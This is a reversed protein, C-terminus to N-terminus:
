NLTKLYAIVDDLDNGDHLGGFPMRNGPVKAQPDSIYARLNPEDWVLNARRMPNSYRFDEVAAAKRGFVGKLSPGIADPRDTHCAACAQFVQKGHEADAANAPSQILTALACSAAALVSVRVFVSVRMIDAFSGELM